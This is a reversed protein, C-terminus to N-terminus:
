QFYSICDLNILGKWKFSFDMSKKLIFNAQMESMIWGRQLKYIFNLFKQKGLGQHWNKKGNSPLGLDQDSNDTALIAIYSIKKSKNLM